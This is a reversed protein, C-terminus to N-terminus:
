DYSVSNIIADLVPKDSVRPSSVPSFFSEESNHSSGVVDTDLRLASPGGWDVGPGVWPDVVGRLLLLVVGLVLVGIGFVGLGLVEKGALAALISGHVESSVTLSSGFLHGPFDNGRILNWRSPVPSVDVLSVEESPGLVLM